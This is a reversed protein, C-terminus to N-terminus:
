IYPLGYYSYVEQGYSRDFRPQEGEGDYNPAQEMKERTLSVVYGGKDTDYTLAKWPVPYHRHGIGFIGGFSLVAYEAQGSAKDVMFREVSGLKEGTPDYVSTGQVRDSAILPNASEITTNM